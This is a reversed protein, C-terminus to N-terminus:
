NFINNWKEEEGEMISEQSEHFYKNIYLSDTNCKINIFNNKLYYKYEDIYKNSKNKHTFILNKNLRLYDNKLLKLCETKDDHYITVITDNLATIKEGNISIDYLTYEYIKKTNTFM